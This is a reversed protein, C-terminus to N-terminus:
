NGAAADSTKSVRILQEIDYGDYRNFIIEEDVEFKDLFVYIDNVREHPATYVRFSQFKFTDEGDAYRDATSIVPPVGATLHRWGYFDLAGMSVGYTFGDKRSFILALEHGYNGGWAWLSARYLRGKVAHKSEPIIDVFHSGRRDWSLKVGLSNESSSNEELFNAVNTYYQVEKRDDIFYSSGVLEYNENPEFQYWTARSVQSDQYVVAALYSFLVAMVPFGVWLIMRTVNKM